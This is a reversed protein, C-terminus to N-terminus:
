HWRTGSQGRANNCTDREIYTEKDSEDSSLIMDPSLDFPDLVPLEQEETM